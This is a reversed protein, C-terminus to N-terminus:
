EVESVYLTGDANYRPCIGVGKDTYKVFYNVGTEKDVIVNTDDAYSSKEVVYYEEDETIVPKNEESSEAVECPTMAMVMAVCVAIAVLARLVKKM